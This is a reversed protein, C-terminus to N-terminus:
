SWTRRTSTTRRSSRAARSARSTRCCTPTATRPATSCAVAVLVAGVRCRATRRTARALRLLHDPRRGELAAVTAPADISARRRRTARASRSRTPTSRRGPQRDGQLAATYTGATSYTYRRSRRPPTTTSRRRRRPGLRLDAHRRTRTARGAATSPSRRAPGAGSTPNATPSRRRRRTAPAHLQDPPHDRRHLDAYFLDAAPGSRRPRGPEAARRRLDQAQVPGAARERGDPMAWICNRSYDAFFLRAAYDAPYNGGEAFAFSLGSISSSGTPCTEAPVVHDNHHYRSTRPRSRRRAQARLPERLDCTRRTTARAAPPRGRLLALRLQRRHRRDPRRHPQDGGLQDLGVDGVWVENTGPRITFRFPNRFGTRSSGGPTPTPAAPSRTAPCRRCRDGPRGPDRHRRARGPRRLDAPGPQAARRGRRTPPTQVGRRGGPPDGCPNLPSGDQGYDVFNFSAGDGRERLARRRRRLGPRRHLPEPVAPVLGRGAGARGTSVNGTPRLRSLRGSM